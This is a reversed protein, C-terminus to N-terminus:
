EALAGTPPLLPGTSADGVPLRLLAPLASGTFLLDALGVGVFVVVEVLGDGDGVFVEDDGFGLLDGVFDGDGLLDGVFDGFGLLDGVFDGEGLVEGVGV